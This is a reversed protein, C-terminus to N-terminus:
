TQHDRESGLSAVREREPWSRGENSGPLPASSALDVKDCRQRTPSHTAEDPPWSHIRTHKHWPRRRGLRPATYINWAERAERGKPHERGHRGEKTDRGERAKPPRRLPSPTGASRWRAARGRVPAPLSAALDCSDCAGGQGEEAARSSAAPSTCASADLSSIADLSGFLLESSADFADLEDEDEDLLLSAAGDGGGGAAVASSSSADGRRNSFALRLRPPLSQGLRRGPRTFSHTASRAASHPPPSAPTREVTPVPAHCVPAPPRRRARFQRLRRATLPRRSSNIEKSSDIEEAAAGSPWAAGPTAAPTADVAADRPSSSSSGSSDLAPIGGGGSGSSSSGGGGDGGDSSSGDRRSYFLLYAQAGAVAAEDVAEVRGDDVHYWQRAAASGGGGARVGAASGRVWATYHGSAASAGHHEILACLEYQHGQGPVPAASDCLFPSLDLSELPFSVHEAAKAPSRQRGSGGEGQGAGRFRLLHVVLLPPLHLLRLSKTCNQPSRCRECTYQEEGRLEEPAFFTHLCSLLSQPEARADDAAAAPKPALPLSLDM